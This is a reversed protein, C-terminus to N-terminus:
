PAIHSSVSFVKLTSVVVNLDQLEVERTIRLFYNYICMIICIIYM